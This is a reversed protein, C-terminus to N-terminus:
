KLANVSSTPSRPEIREEIQSHEERVEWLVTWSGVM